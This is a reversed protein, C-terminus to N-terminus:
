AGPPPQERLIRVLMASCYCLAAAFTIEAFGFLRLAPEFALLVGHIFYLLSGMCLAFTSNIGLRLLGPLPVLLPLMQMIFWALNVGPDSLPAVFFQRLGIIGTLSGMLPLCLFLWGRASGQM